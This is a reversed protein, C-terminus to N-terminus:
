LTEWNEEDCLKWAPTTPWIGFSSCFDTSSHHPLLPRRVLTREAALAAAKQKATLFEMQAQRAEKAILKCLEDTQLLAAPEKSEPVGDRLHPVRPFFLPLRQGGQQYRWQLLDSRENFNIEAPETFDSPEEPDFGIGVDEEEEEEEEVPEAPEAARKAM